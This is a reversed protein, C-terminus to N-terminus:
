FDYRLTLRIEYVSQSSSVFSTPDDDFDTYRYLCDSAQRCVQRPADGTLATAGDIGNEAVDAASVLDAQVIGAQGFFPGNEFTGWDSDILNLVNRIDLILSFKNDGVWRDVGPIGPIQQQFRLDWRQNWNSQQSYPAHIEGFPIDNEELYRFFGNVDFGSGYVVRPDNGPNPIYLPNNDFPGEGQGARGFLANSNTVDFATSWQDGSFIQGFVDVRTLNNGFFAREYGFNIKFAEEIQYPSTRASPDNRDEDFIGLWNSIGRSSGGETVAEIDQLAYSIQYDFGNEFAKALTLTIVHSEGDSFNGLETLNNIGLADLDAYIVRGDPATGTPLAEALQTQAINRWLFGDRTNTYLYQATFRYDQGLSFQDFDLDFRQDYRLSAKWDSPTEFDDAIYDIVSGSQGAVADLAEQPVSFIDANELGFVRAFGTPSQFSNSIWVQPEGGAFLGFGGSISGRDFPTWLFGVRPMLLDNGDLNNDTRVGFRELIDQDLAPKDSQSFREYRLGYSLEFTDTVQWKDQIFLAWKDYGWEAAGDRANNSPVNVYDVNGPTRNIIEDFDNFVFRGNSAPVFLNFLNFQELEAGFTLVHDGFYYDGKAFLQLRDDNYENAHRFRDCGAVITNRDTILGELPTGAVDNEDLRFEFHGLDNGGRCIQGRVFEKYNIRLQTSFNYSWDSFLQLTYADLDVPIDYWASQFNAANISVGSEETKQYTFSARHDYNINWDLKVLTRESAEPLSAVAPRGLPDFGYIDQLISGLTSYLAPDRGNVADSNAFDVPSSAEYEDYSVFFFLKDKIIPGSFTFGYEEEEFDGADFRRDGDFKSGVFGDDKYAYYLSGDFENGGSKTVINVLGGTFNTAEVGYDAAVLTVSEVADLNIPSRETAYTNSGLGFDDQQRAGDIALGNFRPNVGAVSLNGVGDSQALPDRLLTSIVDRDTSPQNRIDRDSYTSGVGNNLEVATSLSQGVVELADLQMGASVLMFRFPDQPGPELYVDTEEAAQYGEARVEIEYPGGVRLGAQFFAGTDGTQAQSRTGSPLHTIEVAAGVIGDGDETVVRGRVEASTAQAFVSPAQVVALLLVTLLFVSWGAGAPRAFVSCKM